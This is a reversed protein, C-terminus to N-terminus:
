IIYVVIAHMLFLILTYLSGIAHRLFLRARNAVTTASGGLFKLGVVAIGNKMLRRFHKGASM